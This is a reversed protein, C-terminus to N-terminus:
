LVYYKMNMLPSVNHLHSSLESLPLVAPELNFFASQTNQFCTASGVHCILSLNIIKQKLQRYFLHTWSKWCLWSIRSQSPCPKYFVHYCLIYMCFQLTIGWPFLGSPLSLYVHFSLLLVFRLSIPEQSTFQISSAWSVTCYCINAAM